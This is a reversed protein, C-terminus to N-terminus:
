FDLDPKSFFGPFLFVASAQCRLGSDVFDPTGSQIRVLPRESLLEGWNALRKTVLCLFVWANVSKKRTENEDM